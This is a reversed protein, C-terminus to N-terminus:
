NSHLNDDATKYSALWFVRVSGKGLRLAKYRMVYRHFLELFDIVQLVM